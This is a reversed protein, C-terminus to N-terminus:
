IVSIEVRPNKPDVGYPSFSPIVFDAADDELWGAKVMCDLLSQVINTYDFKRRTRRYVKFNIKLPRPLERVAGLWKQRYLSLQQLLLREEHRLAKPKYMVPKGSSRNVGIPRHNKSSILEGFLTIPTM